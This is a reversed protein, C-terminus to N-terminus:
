GATQNARRARHLARNRIVRMPQGDQMYEIPPASTHYDSPPRIRQGRRGHVLGDVLVDIADMSGGGGRPAAGRYLMRPAAQAVGRQLRSVEDAPMSLLRDFVHSANRMAAQTFDITLSADSSKWHWPWLYAQGSHFLVPICGASIADVIGARALTDGPPQLCFTAHAYASVAQAANGGGMQPWVYLCRPKKQLCAASLMCGRRLCESKLANRWTDFGLQGARRHGWAAFAVAVTIRGGDRETGTALPTSPMQRAHGLYPVSLTMDNTAYGCPMPLMSGRLHDHPGPPRSTYLPLNGTVRFVSAHAICGWTSFCLRGFEDGDTKDIVAVRKGNCVRNQAVCRDSELRLSPVNATGECCREDAVTVCASATEMELTRQPHAALGAVLVSQLSTYHSQQFVAGIRGSSSSAAEGDINFAKPTDVGPIWVM